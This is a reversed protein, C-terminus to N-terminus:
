LMQLADDLNWVRIEHNRAEKSERIEEIFDEDGTIVIRHPSAAAVKVFKRDDQNIEEFGKEKSRWIIKNELSKMWLFWQGTIGEMHRSWEKLIQGEDDLVVRHCKLFIRSLVDIAKWAEFAEEESSPKESAKALVWTDIVVYKKEESM